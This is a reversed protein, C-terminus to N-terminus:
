CTHYNLFFVSACLVLGVCLVYIGNKRQKKDPWFFLASVCAAILGFCLGIFPGRTGTFLFVTCMVLTVLCFGIKHLNDKTNNILVGLSVFIPIFLYNALFIPNGILGGLRSGKTIINDFISLKPGFLAALSHLLVVASGVVFIPIWDKVRRLFIRLLLYLLTFHYLFFIGQMRSQYGWFSRIPDPGILSVFLAWIFFCVVLIDLTCYKPLAIRKNWLLVGAYITLINICLGFVLTKGVIWPYMTNSSFFLPLSIIGFLLIYILRKNYSIKKM